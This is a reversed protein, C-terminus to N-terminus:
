LLSPRDVLASLPDLWTKEQAKYFDLLKAGLGLFLLGAFSSFLNATQAAPPIAQNFADPQM